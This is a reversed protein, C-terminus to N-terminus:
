TYQGLRAVLLLAFLFFVATLLLDIAAAVALAQRAASESCKCKEVRLRRVYKLIWISFLCQMPLVVILVFPLPIPLGLLPAMHVLANFVLWTMIFRRKPDAACKCGIQELRHLYAIMWATMVAYVAVLLGNVAGELSRSGM